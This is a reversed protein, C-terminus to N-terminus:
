NSMGICYIIFTKKPCLIIEFYFYYIMFLVVKEIPLLELGIFNIYGPLAYFLFVFEIKMGLIFKWVNKWDVRETNNETTKPPNELEEPLDHITVNNGNM